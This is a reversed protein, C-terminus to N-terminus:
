FARIAFKLPLEKFGLSRGHSQHKAPIALELRRDNYLTQHVPQLLTNRSKSLAAPAVSLTHFSSEQVLLAPLRTVHKFKSITSANDLFYNQLKESASIKAIIEGLDAHWKPDLHNELCFAKLGSEGPHAGCSALLRLLMVATVRNNGDIIVKFPKEEREVPPCYAVAIPAINALTSVTSDAVIQKVLELVRDPLSFEARPLKNLTVYVYPLQQHGVFHVYEIKQAKKISLFSSELALQAAIARWEHHGFSRTSKESDSVRKLLIRFQKIQASFDRNLGGVPDKLLSHIELFASIDAVTGRALQQAIADLVNNWCTLHDQVQDSMTEYTLPAALFGNKGSAHLLKSEQMMIALRDLTTKGLDKLESRVAAWDGFINKSTALSNLANGGGKPLLREPHSSLMFTVRGEEAELNGFDRWDQDTFFQSQISEANPFLVPPINSREPRAANLVRSLALEMLQEPSPKIIDQRRPRMMPSQLNGIPRSPANEIAPDDCGHANRVSSTQRRFLRITEAELRQTFISALWAYQEFRDHTQISFRMVVRADNCKLIHNITMEASGCAQNTTLMADDADARQSHIVVDLAHTACPIVAVHDPFANLFNAETFRSKDIAAAHERLRNLVPASRARKLGASAWSENPAGGHSRGRPFGGNAITAPEHPVRTTISREDITRMEARLTNSIM